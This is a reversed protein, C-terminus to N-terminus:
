FSRETVKGNRLPFRVLIQYNFGWTTEKDTSGYGPVDHPLMDPTSSTNLGFKYRATYGIWLIKWVKVRLGGTLEFWRGSINNNEYHRNFTGGWLQDVIEVDFDESFVSRGYRAGFFLLNRDPDKKLFNIDVGIRLYSGNNTYHDGDSKFDRGWSGLDLTLYYRYLDIDGNLEWGKYTNSDFTKILSIVDTGVRIGTPTFDKKERKVTDAKDTKQALCFVPLFM